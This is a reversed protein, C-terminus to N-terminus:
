RQSREQRLMEVASIEGDSDGGHLRAKLDDLMASAEEDDLAGLTRMLRERPDGQMRKAKEMSSNMSKQVPQHNDSNWIFGTSITAVMGLIVMMPIMTGSNVVDGTFVPVWLASGLLILVVGWVIATAVLKFEGQM